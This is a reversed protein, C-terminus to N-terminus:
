CASASDREITPLSMDDPSIIIETQEQVENPVSALLPMAFYRSNELPLTM